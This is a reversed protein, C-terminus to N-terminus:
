SKKRNKGSKKKTDEILTDVPIRDTIDTAFEFPTKAVTNEDSAQKATSKKRRAIKDKNPNPSM